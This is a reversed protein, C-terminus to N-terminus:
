RPHQFSWTGWDQMQPPVHLPDCLEKQIERSFEPCLYTAPVELTMGRKINSQCNRAFSKILSDCDMGLKSMKEQTEKTTVVIEEAHQRVKTGHISLQIVIKHEQLIIVAIGVVETKRKCNCVVVKTIGILNWENGIAGVDSDGIGILLAINTLTLTM